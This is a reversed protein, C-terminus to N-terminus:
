EYLERFRRRVIQAVVNMLLTLVFLTMAVAFLTRFELSGTPTDGLSLQVIFATMTQIAELPDFTFQPTQGAAVTVIMTEGIARSAALIVSAVVGSLAAPLVVKIATEM